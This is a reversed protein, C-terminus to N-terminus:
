SQIAPAPKPAGCNRCDTREAPQVTHCHLRLWPWLQAANSAGSNILTGKPVILTEQTAGSGAPKPIYAM